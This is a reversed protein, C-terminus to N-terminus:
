THYIHQIGIDQLAKQCIKCPKANAPKGDKTYRYVEISYAKDLDKCRTIAHIEAHLYQKLPLNVQNAYKAQIPHTKIYSNWGCSLIRGKKDKIVAKIRHKM